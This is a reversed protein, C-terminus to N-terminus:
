GKRVGPAVAVGRLFIDICQRIHERRDEMGPWVREGLAKQLITGFIMDMLIRATAQPNALTITGHEVQQTLWAALDARAPTMGHDVLVQTLEPIQTAECWIFHLFSLRNEEERPSIDIKFIHALADKIPLAPGEVPLALMSLRHRRVSAAILELKSPFLRYLTQKSMHCSAAIEDMTTGIFGQQLFLMEAQAVIKLRRNEDSEVKPRGRKRPAIPSM